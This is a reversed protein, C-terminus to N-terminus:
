FYLIHRVTPMIVTTSTFLFLLYLHLLVPTEFCTTVAKPCLAEFASKSDDIYISRYLRETVHMM